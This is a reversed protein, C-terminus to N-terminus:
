EEGFLAKELRRKEKLLEKREEREAPFMFTLDKSLLRNVEQLRESIYEQRADPQRRGFLADFPNAAPRNSGMARLLRDQEERRAKEKEQERNARDHAVSVEALVALGEGIASLVSRMKKGKGKEKKPRLDSMKAKNAM